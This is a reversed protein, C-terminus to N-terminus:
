QHKTKVHWNLQGVQSAQYDCQQCPYKIGEHRSKVHVVLYDNTTAQYDCLQCPYKIGEHQSQIHVLLYRKSNAMFDCHQCPYKIGEHISEVHRKVHSQQTAQYDCQQCPYTKGEHKSQVHVLLSDKTTAKYDCQHCPYKIGDHKYEVHRKLSDQQSAQYDCQQCPYRIGEHKSQVHKKLNGALKAQYDCLQCQYKLEDNMSVSKISKYSRIPFNKGRSNIAEDQTMPSDKNYEVNEHNADEFEGDVDINGGIEKFDLDKAVNLFENMREQFFKAEGLYIFQMIAELEQHQVGRLFISTNHPNQDFINKFVSSCASLMFKHAKFNHQDDSVLTVDSYQQTEMLGRFLDIGHSMFTHWTLNFKESM